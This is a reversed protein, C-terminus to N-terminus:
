GETVEEVKVQYYECDDDEDYWNKVSKVRFKAAKPSLCEGEPNIGRLSVVSRPSDLSYVVSYSKGEAWDIELAGYSYSKATGENSSWSAIHGFSIDEGPKLKDLVANIESESTLGDKFSMGRYVPHQVKDSLDIFREISDGLRRYEDDGKGFVDQFLESYQKYQELEPAQCRLINRCIDGNAYQNVSDVMDEVDAATMTAKGEKLFQNKALENFRENMEAETTLPHDKLFGHEDHYELAEIKGTQLDAAAVVEGTSLSEYTGDSTKQWMDGDETKVVNGTKVEGFSATKSVKVSTESPDLDGNKVMAEAVKEADPIEFKPCSTKDHPYVSNVIGNTTTTRMKGNPMPQSWENEGTKEYVEGYKLTVKTGLPVSEAAKRVESTVHTWDKGLEEYSFAAQVRENVAKSGPASGGKEGPRGEHNHNGSGPGGDANDKNGNPAIWSPVMIEAEGNDRLSGWTDIPRISAEYVTGSKGAFKEAIKRDLTYSSFVDEAVHKQGQGGRYMKVPTTLFEEFSKGEGHFFKYNEYMVNLAAARSEPTAIVCDVLRPKYASNAERLWGSAVNDPIADWLVDKAKDLSMEQVTDPTVNETKSGYWEHYVTSQFDPRKVGTEKEKKREEKFLGRLKEMNLQRWYEYQESPDLESIKIPGNTYEDEYEFAYDKIRPSFASESHKPTDSGSKKGVAEKLAAPGKYVEGTEGNVEIHTGNVTIWKDDDFSHTGPEGTLATELISLGDAFPQFLSSRMSEIENMSLFEPSRMEGDNCAIEGDWDTCLFVASTIGTDPEQNGCGLFFLEKPTIGFEEQTERMAAQEPTEGDEIHGGPGCILDEGYGQCRVGALIKGDQVCIVGVGKPDDADVKKEETQEAQQIEEASMDQPLKTAAPAATSASGETGPDTNHEGINVGEAYQAFDGEEAIKPEGTVQGYFEKAKEKDEESLYDLEEPFLDEEDAGEDLMSEVDFEDSDALKKRVESPDIVQMDCYIQATQARTQQVTAKKQELDAKELDSMSWLPNFEVKINPVEDVEGTAVGAQFVISLLYRLNSALMRKQIREVFNYYNEMSTDDTTSLGGVGSGFLIVQPINSIASLMNCATSVVDQVGNFQFTKFDYDEGEADIVMSNLFGRAMDITQLRRLVKEEGESTALELALDKMKYVAQISKELLKPASGHAVEADRIARHIRVYEPMGWMQYTTNSSREPLIGNHFTLCRSEHVTFSGWRSTVYFFEPMGLRSGRARFPDHPDYQYMSNYDPVIVSRDYVRIDDISRIHRWDLPEDLGHGDNILMIAISGGFLRAWKIATMATEEWDLEDLASEYFDKLKSDDMNQLVFGHKIAEEAPTDIIKAFLGNGEYFKAILEDPYEPEPQFRYNEASDKQTGYRNILNVFGDGRFPRVAKGVQAEILRNYRRIADLQTM